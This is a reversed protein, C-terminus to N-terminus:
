FGVLGGRIFKKNASNPIKFPQQISVVDRMFSMGIVEDFVIIDIFNSFQLRKKKVYIYTFTM